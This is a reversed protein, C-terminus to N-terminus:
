PILRVVAIKNEKELSVYALTGDRSFTIDNPSKGVKIKVVGSLDEDLVSITGDGRDATVVWGRPHVAIGFPRAGVAVRRVEKLTRADMLALQSGNAGAVYLWQGNASLALGDPNEICPYETTRYNQLELRTISNSGGNAVYVVDGDRNIVVAVPRIGVDVSKLVEHSQTDIIDVHGIRSRGWNAVFARNGGPAIGIAVPQGGVKISDSARVDKTSVVTVQGGRFNVVFLKDGDGALSLALDIPEPGGYILEMNAKPDSLDLMGIEDSAFNAVFLRRGDPSVQLGYPAKGSKIPKLLELRPLSAAFIVSPTLIMWALVILCRVTFLPRRTM